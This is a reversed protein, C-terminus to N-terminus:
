ILSFTIQMIILENLNKEREMFSRGFGIGLGYVFEHNCESIKLIKKRINIDIYTFSLALGHGLGTSLFPNSLAKEFIDIDHDYYMFIHGLDIGFGYAFLPNEDIKKLIKNQVDYTFYKFFRGM